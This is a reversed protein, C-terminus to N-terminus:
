RGWFKNFVSTKKSKNHMALYEEYYNNESYSYKLSLLKPRGCLLDKHTLLSCTLDVIQLFLQSQGAVKVVSLYPFHMDPSTLSLILPRGLATSKFLLVNGGKRLVGRV